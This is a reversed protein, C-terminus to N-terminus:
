HLVEGYVWSRATNRQGPKNQHGRGDPGRSARPQHRSECIRALVELVIALHFNDKFELALELGQHLLQEARDLDGLRWHAAGVSGSTVARMSWDGHSEALAHGRESWDLETRPDGLALVLWGMASMAYAQTEFDDTAAMARRM